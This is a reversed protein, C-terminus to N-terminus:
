KGSIALTLRDSIASPIEAKPGLKMKLKKKLDKVIQRRQGSDKKPFQFVLVNYSLITATIDNADGIAKRCSSIEEPWRAEFAAKILEIKDLSKLWKAVDCFDTGLDNILSQVLIKNKVFDTDYTDVSKARWEPPLAGQVDTAVSMICDKWRDVARHLEFTYYQDLEQVANPLNLKAFPEKEADSAPVAALFSALSKNSESLTVLAPALRGAQLDMKLITSEDVDLLREEESSLMKVKGLNITCMEMKALAQVAHMEPIEKAMALYDVLFQFNTLESNAINEHQAHKPYM